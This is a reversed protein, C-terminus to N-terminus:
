KRELIRDIKATSLGRASMRDRREELQARSKEDIENDVILFTPQEDQWRGDNLWSAPHAIFSKDKGAVQARYRKAGLLLIEPTVNPKKLASNYARMAADPAKHLPYAEYWDKFGEPESIAKVPNRRTKIALEERMRVLMGIIRSIGGESALISRIEHINESYLALASLSEILQDDTM